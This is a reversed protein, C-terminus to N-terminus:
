EQLSRILLIYGDWNIDAEDKPVQINVYPVKKWTFQKLDQALVDTVAPFQVPNNVKKLFHIHWPKRYGITGVWLTQGNDLVLHSDWLRLTITEPGQPLKIVKAMEFVAKRDEYLQDLFYARHKSNKDTLANIALLLSPRTLKYWGQQSLAKEIQDLSGTWQVNLIQLPKGFRNSRYLPQINQNQSWWFNLALARTQWTPTYDYLAQQYQHYAAWGWSLGLSIIATLIIGLPAIRKTVQRRYSLTVVAICATALLIGGVIDSLWHATLYLRSLMILGALFAALGYAWRQRSLSQERCLLVALFGFIALSVTTHGSPFSWGEPTTILGTPRASHILHKFIGAGAFCLLGLALWHFAARWYKGILLWVFVALWMPMLVKSSLLTLAVFFRDASIARLSRMLHYVPENAFTFLGHHAVSYALILFAIILAILYIALRLQAPNEPRTPDTLLQQLFTLRPNQRIRQWINNVSRAFFETTFVYGLKLLWSVCWLILLGLVIVFIFQTAMEPALAQSAAGILVGPLLFAPAWIIGSLIDALFFRLPPMSMMGAMLPLIPRVPGAFRGLFISKGGHKHFFAEGTQLLGPYTRLPWIKRIKDHFCYGLWYSLADGAIAGSIAWLTTGVLPMYGTGILSGLAVMVVTGPILLGVVALSETFAVLFTVFGAWHPHLYLWNLLPKIEVFM